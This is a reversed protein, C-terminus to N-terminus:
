SYSLTTTADRWQLTNDNDVHSDSQVTQSLVDCLCTWQLCLLMTHCWHATSINQSLCVSLCVSLCIPLYLSLSFTSTHRSQLRCWCGILLRSKRHRRSLCRRDDDVSFCVHFIEWTLSRCGWPTARGSGRRVDREIDTQRDTQRDTIM